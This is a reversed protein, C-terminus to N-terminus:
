ILIQTAGYESGFLLSFFRQSCKMSKDQFNGGITQKCHKCPHVTPRVDNFRNYNQSLRHVKFYSFKMLFKPNINEKSINPSPHTCNSHSCSKFM